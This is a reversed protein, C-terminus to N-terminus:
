YTIVNIVAQIQATSKKKKLGATKIQKIFSLCHGHLALSKLSTARVIMQCQVQNKQRLSTASNPIQFPCSIYSAQIKKKLM